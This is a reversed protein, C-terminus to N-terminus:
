FTPPSNPPLASSAPPTHISSTTWTTPIPQHCAHAALVDARATGAPQDAIHEAWRQELELRGRTRVLATTRRGSALAVVEGLATLPQPDAWTEFAMLDADIGAVCWASCKPCRRAKARRTLGETTMHGARILHEIVRPAPPGAPTSPGTEFLTALATAPASM